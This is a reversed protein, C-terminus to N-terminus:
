GAMLPNIPPREMHREFELFVGFRRARETEEELEYCFQTLLHEMVAIYPEDRRTIQYFPPMRPHWSYFHVLDFGGVLLHGQVQPRYDKDLGDLLRGIQTWPAPCKIEVSQNRGVILRDPSCGMTGADNTVFGIPELELNHAFELQAAANPEEIKGREIWELRGIGDEMQENLLREAILRYMYERAQASPKGGPTIIKHFMSSTPKGIRLKFWEATGQDVYHKKSM